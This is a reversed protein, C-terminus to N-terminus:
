ASSKEPMTTITSGSSTRPAPNTTHILLRWRHVPAGPRERRRADDEAHQDAAVEESVRGFGAAAAAAAGARATWPLCPCAPSPRASPGAPPCGSARSSPRRVPGSSGGTGTGSSSSVDVDVVQQGAERGQGGVPDDVLIGVSRAWNPRFGGRAIATPVKLVARGM